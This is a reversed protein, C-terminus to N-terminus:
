PKKPAASKLYGAAVALLVALAAAVEGPLTYGALSAAYIIITAVAGSAGAAAVKPHVTKM